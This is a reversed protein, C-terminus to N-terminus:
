LGYHQDFESGTTSTLSASYRRSTGGGTRHALATPSTRGALSSPCMTLALITSSCRPRVAVSSAIRIFRHPCHSSSLIHANTLTHAYHTHTPSHTYSRSYAHSLPYLRCPRISPHVCSSAHLRQATLPRCDICVAFRNGHGRRVRQARRPEEARGADPAHSEREFRPPTITGLSWLGPKSIWFARRTL